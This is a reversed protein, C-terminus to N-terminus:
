ACLCLYENSISKGLLFGFWLGSNTLFELEKEGCRKFLQGLLSRDQLMQTQVCRQIDFYSDINAIMDKSLGKLFQFNFHQLIRQSAGPLGLFVAKPIKVMWTQPLLDRLVEEGMKPVEPALRKALESPDLRAFADKVTLLQSTVMHVMAESMPRTKCPVIGQWGLFGLPVEEKLYIPIGRFKIPYFIMQVALWNTFWGVLAAIVPITLYTGPRAKFKAGAKRFHDLFTFPKQLLL